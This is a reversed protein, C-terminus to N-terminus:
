KVALTVGAQSQSGGITVVVPANGPQIGQPVTVDVEVYGQVQGDADGALSVDAAQGGIRVTATQALSALPASAVKGDFGAPNLQGGGAIYFKVKTGRAAANAASNATGDANVALAEGQGTGDATFVGPASKAVNVVVGNSVIGQYVVQVNASTRGDLFFPAVVKARGNVVELMPSPVGEFLVATDALSTSYVGTPQNKVLQAPGFYLGVVNLEEGAAIAGGQGSAANTVGTVTLVPPSPLVILNVQVNQPPGNTATFSATGQYKGAAFKEIGVVSIQEASLTQGSAPTVQIWPDSTKATFAQNRTVSGVTVVQAAPLKAGQVWQFTLISPTLTLRPPELVHLVITVNIQGPNTKTGTITMIASTNGIQVKTPDINVSLTANTAGTAPSEVLWPTGNTSVTFQLNPQSGTLQITQAAPTPDGSVDDFVLTTKDVSISPLQPPPPPAQCTAIDDATIVGDGNVDLPDGPLAASGIIASMLDADIQNV